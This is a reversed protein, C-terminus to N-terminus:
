IVNIKKKLKVSILFIIYNITDFICLLIIIGGIILYFFNKKLGM